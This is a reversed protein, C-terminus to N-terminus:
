PFSSHAEYNRYLDKGGNLQLLWGVFQELLRLMVPLLAMGFLVKWKRDVFKSYDTYWWKINPVLHPLMILQAATLECEM